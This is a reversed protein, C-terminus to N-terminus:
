CWVFECGLALVVLITIPYTPFINNRITKKNYENIVDKLNSIVETADRIDKGSLEGFLPKEEFIKITVTHPSSPTYNNIVTYYKYGQEIVIEASRYQIFQEIMDRDTFLSADFGVQYIDKEFKQDSYGGFLNKEHYKTACGTIILPLVIALLLKKMNLRGIRSEM